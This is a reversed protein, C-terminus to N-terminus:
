DAPQGVYRGEESSEIRRLELAKTRLQAYRDLAKNVEAADNKLEFAEKLAEYYDAERMYSRSRRPIGGKGSSDEESILRQLIDIARDPKHEATLAVALRYDLMALEERVASAYVPDRKMRDQDLTASVRAREGAVTDSLSGTAHRALYIALWIAAAVAVFVVVRVHFKM